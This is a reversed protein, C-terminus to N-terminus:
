RMGTKTSSYTDDGGSLMTAANASRKAAGGMASAPPARGPGHGYKDGGVLEKVSRPVKGMKFLGM